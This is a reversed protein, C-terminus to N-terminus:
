GVRRPPDDNYTRRRGAGCCWDEHLDKKIENQQDNTEHSHSFDGIAAQKELSNQNHISEIQAIPLIPSVFEAIKLM